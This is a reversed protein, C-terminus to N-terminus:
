LVHLTYIHKLLGTHSLFPLHTSILRCYYKLSGVLPFVLTFFYSTSPEARSLSTSHNQPLQSSHYPLIFIHSHAPLITWQYPGQYSFALESLCLEIGSVQMTSPFSSVGEHQRRIEVCTGFVCACVCVCVCVSACASELYVLTKLFSLSLLFALLFSDLLPWLLVLYWPPADTSLFAM